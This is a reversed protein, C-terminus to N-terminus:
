QLLLLSRSSEKLKNLSCTVEERRSRCLSAPTVRLSVSSQASSRQLNEDDCIHVLVQWELMNHTMLSPQATCDMGLTYRELSFCAVFVYCYQIAPTAFNLFHFSGLSTTKIAFCIAILSDFHYRQNLHQSATVSSAVGHCCGFSTKQFTTQPQM